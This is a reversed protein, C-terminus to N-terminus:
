LIFCLGLEGSSQGGFEPATTQISIDQHFKSNDSMGATHIVDRTVTM